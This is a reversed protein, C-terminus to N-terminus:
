LRYPRQIEDYILMQPSLSSEYQSWRSSHRDRREPTKVVPRSSNPPQTRLERRSFQIRSVGDLLMISKQRISENSDHGELRPNPERRLSQCAMKM